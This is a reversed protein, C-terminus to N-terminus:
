CSSVRANFLTRHGLAVDRLSTSPQSEIGRPLKYVISCRLVKVDLRDGLRVLNDGSWMALREMADACRLKVNNRDRHDNGVPDNMVIIPLVGDESHHTTMM